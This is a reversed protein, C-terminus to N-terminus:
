KKVVKKKAKTNKSISKEGPTTVALFDSFVQEQTSPDRLLIQVRYTTQAKLDTLYIEHDMSENLDVASSTLRAHNEFDYNLGYRVQGSVAKNTKFKVVIQTGSPTNLEINSITLKTGEVSFAPFSFAIGLLFIGITKFKVKIM